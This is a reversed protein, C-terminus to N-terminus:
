SSRSVFSLGGYGGGVKGPDALMSRLQREHAKEQRTLWATWHRRELGLAERRWRILGSPIAAAAGIVAAATALRPDAYAASVTFFGTLIAPAMAAELGALRLDRQLSERDLAIEALLLRTADADGVRQERFAQMLNQVKGSFSRRLHVMGPEGHLDMLRKLHGPTLDRKRFRPVDVILSMVASYQESGLPRPPGWGRTRQFAKPDEPVMELNQQEFCSTADDTITIGSDDVEMIEALSHLVRVAIVKHLLVGGSCDSAWGGKKLLAVLGYGLKRHHVRVVDTAAAFRPNFPSLVPDAFRARAWSQLRAIDDEAPLIRVVLEDNFRAVVDAFGAPVESATFSAQDRDDRAFPNICRVGDWLLLSEAIFGPDSVTMYPYYLPREANLSPM